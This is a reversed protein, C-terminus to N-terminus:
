NPFSRRPTPRTPATFFAVIRRAVTASYVADGSAIALVARVIEQRDAGKLLYGSAGARLAGFLAEFDEHMTLVLVGIHPFRATIQRAATAGDLGPMALDTLVVDLRAQEVLAVLQSGDAADGVVEVETSAALVARL